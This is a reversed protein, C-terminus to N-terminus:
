LNWYLLRGAENPGVIMTLGPGLGRISVRRYAGFSEVFIDEIRM